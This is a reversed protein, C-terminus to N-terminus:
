TRKKKQTTHRMSKRMVITRRLASQLARMIGPEVTAHGADPIVMLKTHPLAKCIAHAGTIPCVMDYRGHVITIPIDRLKDLGKILQDPKLWCDNVFYHNELRALALAEKPKTTDKIPILQSM